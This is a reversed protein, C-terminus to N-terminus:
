DFTLIKKANANIEAISKILGPILVHQSDAFESNHKKIAEFLQIADRSISALRMVMQNPNLDILNVMIKNLPVFFFNHYVEIEANDNHNERLKDLMTQIDFIGQEQLSPHPEVMYHGLMSYCERFYKQYNLKREYDYDKGRRMEDPLMVFQNYVYEIGSILNGFEKISGEGPFERIYAILIRDLSEGEAIRKLNYIPLFSLLPLDIENIKVTKVFIEMNSVQKESIKLINRVVEKFYLLIDRTEQKQRAQQENKEKRNSFQYIILSVYIALMSGLTCGIGNQLVAKWYEASLFEPIM